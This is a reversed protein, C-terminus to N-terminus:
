NLYRFDLSGFLAQVLQTWADERAQPTAGDDAPSLYAQAALLEAARPERGLLIRFAAVLRSKDDEASALLRVATHRAQERVFPDNLMWLAQPAVTSTARVGTVVSPDAFDFVQFLSPLANRLVPVYVSRRPQDYVFGYDAATGPAITPGGLTLDLRGAAGLMADRLAEADLRRRVARGFLRNEPDAEVLSPEATTAQRYTRSTVIRRVLRKISWGDDIFQLALEDLLEPHSPREGTTGFNDTTRVLGAGFLWHWARNVFVRATLPNDPAAIWDALERRGSQEPPLAPPRVGPMVSLFGRPVEDTQNHVNGRVHVRANEISAQEVVSLAKPRRPSDERLKRLEGELDRLQRQADKLEASEAAAPPTEGAAAGSSEGVPLFQVADAVVHGDAGANSILVFSQGGLEFRFEGLSVFRGDIPPRERQNIQRVLEGEASFVTVETNTARNSGPTYALRVDYRGAAPLEAIFTATKTGPQENGDHVYGEGVYRRVSQSRTWRGVLRAQADDVVVGPLDSAKVVAPGAPDTQALREVLERQQKVQAALKSEQTHLEAFFREEDEPLPLPVDLWNSVNADELTQTNRLIGALAYYDTTPIPDFKHDHCRACGLTQALFARGITELQEDVVDMRLQAKDQEELNHNGMALFATAIRQRQREPLSEAPLLDGALQERVLRDFPRDANFAEIVYDRYRWAESMVLGRLTFSEAFRAVDLWHRGWREGYQPSALLRDVQREYAGPAEDAVFADLEEPTPPLGVLDFSLRRLLEPRSAEGAPRLNAEELRALIFGDLREDLPWTADRLEPVAARTPPRYCWHERGAALDIARPASAAVPERPDPAGAAIWRDFDAVVNDALQGAPPMQLDPDDYRIARLLRSAQPDGPVLAPGSDGGAVLAPRSDLQLGGSREDGAHCEYCHEVLVPRIRQEFFEVDGARACRWGHPALAAMACALSLLRM